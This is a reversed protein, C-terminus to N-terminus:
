PRVAVPHGTITHGLLKAGKVKRTKGPADPGSGPVRVQKPDEGESSVKELQHIKVSEMKEIDCKLQVKLTQTAADRAMALPKPGGGLVIFRYEFKGITATVQYQM